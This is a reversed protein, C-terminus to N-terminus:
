FLDEGLGAPLGGVDVQPFDVLGEGADGHERHLVEADRVVLDVDVAARGGETMRDAGASRSDEHRQDVRQLLGAALAADRAEADAAAFRSRYRHFQDLGSNRPAPPSAAIWFLNSQKAVSAIVAVEERRLGPM